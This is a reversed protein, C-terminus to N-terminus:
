KSRLDAPGNEGDALDHTIVTFFDAPFQGTIRIELKILLDFVKDAVLYGSSLM